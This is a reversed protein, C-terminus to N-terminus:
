LLSKQGPWPVGDHGYSEDDIVNFTGRCNEERLSQFAHNMLVNYWEEPDVGPKEGFKVNGRGTNSINRNFNFAFRPHFEGFAYDIGNCFIGSFLLSPLVIYEAGEIDMKM